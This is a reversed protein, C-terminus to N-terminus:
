RSATSISSWCRSRSPPRFPWRSSAPSAGASRSGSSRAVGFVAIGMHLLLENSKEAATEGYHRTVTVAVDAPIFRARSRTSRACSTTRSPSPTRAPASPSASRSPPNKALRPARRATALSCTTRRSRRATSSTRSRACISPRGGFVGVVVNGVDQRQRPFRRDGRRGGPQRDHARRALDPPEGAPADARPRRRQSQALRAEGSRAARADRPARRRDPHDRRGAAGAQGCRGGPRRAPAAHPSRLARQSVHARPDARRRHVEAQHAARAVGHPIRDFNAQLKETLRSSAPSPDAGVKFRVIVLSEGDRSTSYLYEVGPIEWLLKEMPRTVREEVEKASSGPMSVLVDVMPVKIQPEEERPLLVIAAVGLLVSAIVILPTLKSDIFAARHSGRPWLATISPERRENQPFDSSCASCAATSRAAGGHRPSRALAPLVSASTVSRRGLRRAPWSRHDDPSDRSRQKRGSARLAFTRLQAAADRRLRARNEAASSSPSPRCRDSLM